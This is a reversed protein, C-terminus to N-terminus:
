QNALTAFYDKAKKLNSAPDKMFVEKSKENGFCYVKGEYTGNVECTTQYVRSNALSNVCYNKFEGELAESAGTGTIFFLVTLLKENAYIKMTFDRLWLLGSM